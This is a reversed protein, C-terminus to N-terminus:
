WSMLCPPVVRFHKMGAAALISYRIYLENELTLDHQNSDYSYWSYHQDLVLYVKKNIKTDFINLLKLELWNLDWHWLKLNWKIQLQISSFHFSILVLILFIRITRQCGQVSIMTNLFLFWFLPVLVPVMFSCSGLSWCRFRSQVLFDVSILIHCTTNRM